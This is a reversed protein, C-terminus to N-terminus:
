PAAGLGFGVGAHTGTDSGRPLRRAALLGLACSLSIDSFSGAGEHKVGTNCDGPVPSDRANRHVASGAALGPDVTAPSGTHRPLKPTAPLAATIAWFRLNRVATGQIAGWISDRGAGRIHRSAAEVVRTTPTRVGLVHGRSARQSRRGTWARSGGRPDRRAAASGFIASWRRARARYLASSNAVTLPSRRGAWYQVSWTLAPGSRLCRETDAGM